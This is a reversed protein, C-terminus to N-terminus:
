KKIIKEKASFMISNALHASAKAFFDRLNSTRPDGNPFRIMAPLFAEFDPKRSKFKIKGTKDRVINIRMFADLLMWGRQEENSKDWSLYDAFGVYDVKFFPKYMEPVRKFQVPRGRYDVHEEEANTQVRMCGLVKIEFERFAALEQVKEDAIMSNIAVTFSADEIYEIM